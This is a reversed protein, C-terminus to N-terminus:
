TSPPTVELADMLAATRPNELLAERFAAHAKSGISPDSSLREHYDMASTAGVASMAAKYADNTYKGYEAIEPQLRVREEARRRMESTGPANELYAQLGKKETSSLSGDSTFTDALKHYGSTDKIAQQSISLDNLPSLYEGMWSPLAFAEVGETAMKEGHALARGLESIALGDSPSKPSESPQISTMNPARESSVLYSQMNHTIQIGNM